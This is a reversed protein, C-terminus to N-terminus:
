KTRRMTRLLMDFEDLCKQRLELQYNKIIFHNITFSVIQKKVVDDTEFLQDTREIPSLSINSHHSLNGATLWM